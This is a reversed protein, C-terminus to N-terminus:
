TYLIGNGNDISDFSPSQGEDLTVLLETKQDYIM